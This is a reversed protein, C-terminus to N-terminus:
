TGEVFNLSVSWYNGESLVLRPNDKLYYYGNLQDNDVTITGEPFILWVPRTYSAYNLVELLPQFEEKTLTSISGSIERQTNIEDIFRQGLRNTSVTANDNFTLNLPYNFSLNGLQAAKGIFLKAVEVYGASGKFTLRAYRYSQVTDFYAYAFGNLTDISVPVSVPPSVWSTSNNLELTCSTFGLGELTSDVFALTNIDQMTQFDFILTTDNSTSRFTKTRRDDRLNALPYQANESTTSIEAVKVLNEALFVQNSLPM